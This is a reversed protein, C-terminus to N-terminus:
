KKKGGKGIYEEGKLRATKKVNVKWNEPQKIRPGNDRPIKSSSSKKKSVNELIGETIPLDEPEDLMGTENNTNNIDVMEQNNHTDPPQRWWLASIPM